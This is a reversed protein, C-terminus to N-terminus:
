AAVGVRRAFLRVAQEADERTAYPRQGIRSKTRRLGCRTTIAVTAVAFRRRAILEYEYRVGEIEGAVRQKTVRISRLM